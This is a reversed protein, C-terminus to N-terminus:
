LREAINIHILKDFWDPFSGTVNITGFSEALTWNFTRTFFLFHTKLFPRDKPMDDLQDEEASGCDRGTLIMTKATRVNTGVKWFRAFNFLTLVFKTSTLHSQPDQRTSWQHCRDQKITEMHIKKHLDDSVLKQRTMTFMRSEGSICAQM